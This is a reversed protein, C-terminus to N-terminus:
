LYFYKKCQEIFNEVSKINENQQKAIYDLMEDRTKLAYEIDDLGYALGYTDEVKPHWKEKTIGDDPIVISICGCLSAYIFYYTYTDYSIFYKKQNFIKSLEEHSMGDVLLSDKEHVFKKDKGKRIMHCSGVRDDFNTQQYIDTMIYRLVLNNEDGILYGSGSCEKGYGFLLENITFNIRGNHFGPKHLLWRVINKADLPNGDIIESYLVMSDVLDKSKAIPTNWNKNVTFPRHIEKRYYKMFKLISKILRKSDFIPRYSQWLYAEYGLNNLHHCLLHLVIIGGSNVNYRQSHIIFKMNFEVRM